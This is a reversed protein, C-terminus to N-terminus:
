VDFNHIIRADSTHEVYVPSTEETSAQEKWTTQRHKMTSTIVRSM